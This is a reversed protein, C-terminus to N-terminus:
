VMIGLNGHSLRTKAAERGEGGLREDRRRQDAKRKAPDIGVDHERVHLADRWERDGEREASKTGSANECARRQSSTSARM